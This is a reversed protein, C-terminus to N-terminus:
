LIEGTEENIIELTEEAKEAELEEKRKDKAFVLREMNTKNKQNMWFKYSKVYTEQLVEITNSWSIDLLDQEIDHEETIAKVNNEKKITLDIKQHPIMSDTESEDIFGLGCISLTVRRKAKTEAKLLANCLNDGKLGEITIAGTSADTRGDPTTAHATVIYVGNTIQNEIKTISVHHNKRLQETADKTVYPIEKGNFKMLKIPCTLHNLGLSDCINRIHVIKEVTTLGSLDNTTMVKELLAGSNDNRGGFVQNAIAM